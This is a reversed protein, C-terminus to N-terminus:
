VVSKRDLVNEERTPLLSLKAYGLEKALAEAMPLIVQDQYELRLRARRDQIIAGVTFGPHFTINGTSSSEFLYIQVFNPLLLLCLLVLLNRAPIEIQAVTFLILVALIAIYEIEDPLLIFRPLYFGLCLLTLTLSPRFFPNSKLAARLRQRYTLLTAILYAWGPFGFLVIFGLAARGLLMWFPDALFVQRTFPSDRYALYPVFAGLAWLIGAFFAHRVLPKAFILTALFIAGSLLIYDPRTSTALGLSIATLFLPQPEKRSLYVLWGYLSATAFFLGQSTELITNGSIISIPLLGYCLTGLFAKIRGSGVRELSLFLFVESLLFFALSVLKAAFLGGYAIVHYILIEYAPFGWSRSPSLGKEGLQSAEQVIFHGDLDGSYGARFKHM